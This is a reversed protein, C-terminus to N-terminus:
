DSNLSEVRKVIISTTKCKMSLDPFKAEVAHASPSDMQVTMSAAQTNRKFSARGLEKKVSNRCAPSQKEPLSQNSLTM